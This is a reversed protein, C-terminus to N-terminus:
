RLPILHKLSRPRRIYRKVMFSRPLDLPLRFEQEYLKRLTATISLEPLAEVDLKVGRGWRRNMAHVFSPIPSRHPPLGAREFSTRLMVPEYDNERMLQLFFKPSYNFLGHGILCVPVEHHMLGGKRVLDHIARFCNSQNAVHETTGANVVLDFAGRLNEPVEGSNLDLAISDRHGDYDLTTLEFGLSNWFPGSPPAKRTFNEPGCPRGIDVRKAGFLGYLEDLLKDDTLFTDALQQAGIEAVRRVGELAGCRKLAIFDELFGSGLGM